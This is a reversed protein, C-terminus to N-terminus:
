CDPNFRRNLAKMSQGFNNTVAEPFRLFTIQAKGMLRVRLWKLKDEASEWKNIIAVNEFHAAWEPWTGTTEDYPELLLLPRQVM